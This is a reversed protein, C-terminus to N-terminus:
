VGNQHGERASAMSQYLRGLEASVGAIHFRDLARRHGADALSRRLWPSRLLRLVADALAAPDETPVLLGSIGHEITDRNGVVDTLVVPVRARMAELPAYAAGEYRSPMAFVDLEPMAADGGTPRRVLHFRGALHQEAIEREVVDALEGDGFLVFHPAAEEAAVLACARVYLEPAKQPALRGVNGVLPTTADLGLEGRLDVEDPPPQPDIGNPIVVVRARAVLRSEVAREAESPSAAILRDTVVGLAREMASAARGPFLGNPTYCAPVGSGAAAARAVAGGISSHGHVIHPRLRHILRRVRAIAVLNEPHVPSRRMRVRHELAGDAWMRETIGVDTYRQGGPPPVVVHHEADVHGVIGALHRVTGFQVAELVHLV